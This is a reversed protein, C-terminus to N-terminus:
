DVYCPTTESTELALYLAHADDVLQGYASHGTHAVLLDLSILAAGIRAVQARYSQMFAGYQVPEICAGLDEGDVVFWSVDLSPQEFLDLYSLLTLIVAHSVLAATVQEDNEFQEYLADLVIGRDYNLGDASLVGCVDLDTVAAPLAPLHADLPDSLLERVRALTARNAVLDDYGAYAQPEFPEVSAEEGFTCVADSVGRGAGGFDGNVANLVHGVVAELDLVSLDDRRMLTTGLELRVVAHSPELDYARELLRVAGDYDGAARAYRADILLTEVDNADGFAPDLLNCGSMMVLVLFPAVAGRITVRM